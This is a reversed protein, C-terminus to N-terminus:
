QFNMITTLPTIAIATAKVPTDKQNNNRNQYRYRGTSDSQNNRLERRKEDEWAKQIQEQESTKERYEGRRLADPDLSEVRKPGTPTM